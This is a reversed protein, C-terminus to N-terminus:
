QGPYASQVAERAQRVSDLGEVGGRVAKTADFRARAAATGTTAVSLTDSRVQLSQQALQDVNGSALSRRLTQLSDQQALVASEAQLQAQKEAAVLDQIQRVGDARAQSLNRQADSASRQANALAENASRVQDAAQRQKDAATADDYASAQRAKQAQQVAKFVAGV